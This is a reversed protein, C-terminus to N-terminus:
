HQDDDYAELLNHAFDLVKRRKVRGRQLNTCVSSSTALCMKVAIQEYTCGDVYYLVLHEMQRKTLTRMMARAIVRQTKTLEQEQQGAIAALYMRLEDADGTGSCRPCKKENDM